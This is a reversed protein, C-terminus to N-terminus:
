IDLGLERARRVLGEAGSRAYLEAARDSWLAERDLEIGTANTKTDTARTEELAPPGAEPDVGLWACLSGCEGPTQLLTEFNLMYARDPTLAGYCEENLLLAVGIMESLHGLHGQARRELYTCFADRDDPIEEVSFQPLDRRRFRFDVFESVLTKRPHRYACVFRFAPFLPSLLPVSLHGFALQGHRVERLLRMCLKDEKAKGPFRTNTELDLKKTNLFSNASVHFGTNEFGLRGIFDALFYTGAKPITFIYLKVRDRERSFEVRVGAAGAQSLYPAGARM